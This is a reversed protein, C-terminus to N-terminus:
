KRDRSRNSGLWRILLELYFRCGHLLDFWDRRTRGCCFNSREARDGFRLDKLAKTDEYFRVEGGQQAAAKTPTPMAVGIAGFATTSSMGIITDRSLFERRSLLAAYYESTHFEIAPHNAFITNRSRELASVTSKGLVLTCTWGRVPATQFETVEDFSNGAIQFATPM